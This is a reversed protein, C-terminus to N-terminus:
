LFRSIARDVVHRGYERYLQAFSRGRLFRRAIERAQRARLRDTM